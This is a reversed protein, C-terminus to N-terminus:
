KRVGAPLTDLERVAIPMKLMVLGTAALGCLGLYILFVLDYSGTTDSIYGAM